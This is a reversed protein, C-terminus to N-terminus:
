GGDGPLWGAVFTSRRLIGAPLGAGRRGGRGGEKREERKEM